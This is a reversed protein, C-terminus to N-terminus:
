MLQMTGINSSAQLFNRKSWLSSHRRRPQQEEPSAHFLRGQHVPQLEEKSVEFTKLRGLNGMELTTCGDFLLM